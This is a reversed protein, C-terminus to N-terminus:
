CITSSAPIDRILRRILDVVSKEISSYLPISKDKFILILVISIKEQGLLDYLLQKNNRWAERIRRRILNRDVARKFSKKSVSIAVQAPFEMENDTRIWIVQFASSYFSKGNEFLEAIAKKSCLRESKHFTQPSHPM